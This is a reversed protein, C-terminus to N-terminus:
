LEDFNVETEITLNRTRRRQPMNKLQEDTYGARKLRKNYYYRRQREEDARHLEKALVACIWGRGEHNRSDCCNKGPRVIEELLEDYSMNPRIPCTCKM